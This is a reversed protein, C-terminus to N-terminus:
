STSMIELAEGYYDSGRAWETLEDRPLLPPFVDNTVALVLAIVSVKTERDWEGDDIVARIVESAKAGPEELVSRVSV